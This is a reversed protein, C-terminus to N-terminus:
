NFMSDAEIKRRMKMRTSRSTACSTAKRATSVLGQPQKEESVEYHSVQPLKRGFDATIPRQCDLVPYAISFPFSAADIIGDEVPHTCDLTFKLIRGGRAERSRLLLLM